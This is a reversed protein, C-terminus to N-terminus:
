SAIETVLVICLRIISRYSLHIVFQLPNPLLRDHGLKATIDRRGGPSVPFVVFLRFNLITKQSTSRTFYNDVSTESTRTAGMMQSSLFVIRFKM